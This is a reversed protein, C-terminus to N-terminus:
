KNIPICCLALNRNKYTEKSNITPFFIVEDGINFDESWEISPAFYDIDEGAVRIFCYNRESKLVVIGQKYGLVSSKDNNYVKSFKRKKVKLLLDGKQLSSNDLLNTPILLVGDTKYAVIFRQTVKNVILISSDKNIKLSQVPFYGYLDFRKILKIIDAIDLNGIMKLCNKDEKIEFSHYYDIKNMIGYILIEHNKSIYANNHNDFRFKLKQIRFDNIILYENDVIYEDNSFCIEIKRFLDKYRDPLLKDSINLLIQRIISGIDKDSIHDSVYNYVYDSNYRCEIYSKLIKKKSKLSILPFIVTTVLEFQEENYENEKFIYSYYDIQSSTYLHLHSKIFNADSMSFLYLPNYCEYYLKSLEENSLFHLLSESFKMMKNRIKIDQLIEAAYDVWDYLLRKNSTYTNLISKIKNCNIGLLWYSRWRECFIIIKFLPESSVLAIATYLGEIYNLDPHCNENNYIQEWNVVIFLLYQEMYNKYEYTVDFMSAFVHCVVAINLDTNYGLDGRISKTFNDILCIKEHPTLLPTVLEIAMKFTDHWGNDCNNIPWLKTRHYINSLYLAAFFEQFTEHVFSIDSKIDEILFDGNLLEDFLLSEECRFGKDNLINRLKRYMTDRHLFITNECKMYYALCSLIIKIHDPKINVIRKKTERQLKDNIFKNYLQGKNKPIKKDKKWVEVLMTLMMPSSAIDLFGKNAKIGDYLENNGGKNIIFKYISESSLNLLKFLPFNFYNIFNYERSTFIMPCSPHKNIFDKINLIATDRVNSSIENLGDFLILVKNRKIFYTIWCGGVIEEINTIIDNKFNLKTLQIYIPVVDRENNAYAFCNDLFIKKLTTTKGAGANGLIILQLNNKIIDLIPYIYNKENEEENDSENWLDIEEELLENNEYTTNEVFSEIHFNWEDKFSVAELSQTKLGNRLEFYNEADLCFYSDKIHSFSGTLFKKVYEDSKQKYYLSDDINENIIYTYLRDFEHETFSEFHKLGKPICNISSDELRLTFIRTKRRETNRLALFNLWEDEVWKSLTDNKSCIVVLNRSRAIGLDLTLKFKDNGYEPLSIESLFVNLEREKLFDHLKKAVNYNKSEKSIFVDYYYQKDM